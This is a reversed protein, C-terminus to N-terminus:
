PFPWFQLAVAVLMFVLAGATLAFAARGFWGPDRRLANLGLLVVLMLAFPLVLFKGSDMWTLGLYLRKENVATPGHTLM